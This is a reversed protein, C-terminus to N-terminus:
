EYHGDKSLKMWIGGMMSHGNFRGFGKKAHYYYDKEEETFDDTSKKNNISESICFPMLKGTEVFYCYRINADTCMGCGKLADLEHSCELCIWQYPTLAAYRGKYIQKGCKACLHGTAKPVIVDCTNCAVHLDRHAYHPCEYEWCKDRSRKNMLSPLQRLADSTTIIKECTCLFINKGCGVCNKMGKKDKTFARGCGCKEVKPEPYDHCADVFEDVNGM